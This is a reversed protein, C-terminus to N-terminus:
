CLALRSRPLDPRGVRHGSYPNGNLVARAQGFEAGSLWRGLLLCYVFRLMDGIRPSALMMLFGPLAAPTVHFRQTLRELTAKATTLM